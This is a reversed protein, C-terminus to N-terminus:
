SESSCINEHIACDSAGTARCQAMATSTAAVQDRAQVVFSANRETSIALAGCNEKLSVKVVCDNTGSAKNCEAISRKYASIPDSYGWAGGYTLSSDSMAIAGYPGVGPKAILKWAALGCLAVLVVVVLVTFPKIRDGPM